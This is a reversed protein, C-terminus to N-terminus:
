YFCTIIIFHPKILVDIDEYYFYVDYYFIDIEISKMILNQNVIYFVEMDPILLHMQVNNHSIVSFSEYTSLNALLCIGCTSKYYALYM